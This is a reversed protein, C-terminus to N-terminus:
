GQQSNQSIYSIQPEAIFKDKNRMGDRLVILRKKPGPVSGKVLIYRNKVLGYKIFGGAPNVEEGDAGLKIVRKNYETRRFYGMQGYRPITWRLRAPTWPGISGVKRPGDKTKHSLRTVGHRKIVGQFGKGKTIGIVDLYQGPKTFDEVQLEQGLRDKAWEFAEYVSNAGVKIELIEPAKSGIGTLDPQTHVLVRLELANNLSGEMATLQTNVSEEDFTAFRKRRKIHKNPSNVMVDKLIKTGYPTSQYTRMGMLITPPTEIVTVPTLRNTNAVHSKVRDERMIVQTMGAKFGPFGLIKPDGSYKPWDRVRPKGSNSRKRRYGLSSRKPAEYKRRTM